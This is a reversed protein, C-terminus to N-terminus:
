NQPHAHSVGFEADVIECVIHILTIHCEQIRATDSSPVVLTCDAAEGVPGVKAGVLALTRSGAQRAAELARLVNASNGSTSLGILLDGPQAFAEVQRSFIEEYSFDNAVCTLITTDTTLALAPLAARGNLKFRGVIEGAFHQADAASGGNGCILLKHGSRMTDIVLRAAESVKEALTEALQRKVEASELLQQRVLQAYNTQESQIDPQIFNTM